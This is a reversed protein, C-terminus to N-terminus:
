VWPMFMTISFTRWSRWVHVVGARDPGVALALVGVVVALAAAALHLVALHRRVQAPGIGAGPEAMTMRRPQPCSRFVLSGHSDLRCIEAHRKLEVVEVVLVEGEELVARRM